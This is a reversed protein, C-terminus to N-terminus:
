AANVAPLVTLQVTVRREQASDGRLFGLTLLDATNIADYLDDPSQLRKGSASLLIDGPLLSAREAPGGPEVELLILGLRPQANASRVRIPRVTVGLNRPPEASLFAQLAGTPIALALPGAIMTNVGVIQGHIDALPGGSNGPALRLNSQVWRGNGLGRVPGVQYVTGTSIAGIFGLPNGAAIVPTGSRPVESSLVAAPASLRDAVLLALDRRRDQRILRVKRIEGDWSEVEPERGVLVHANTVVQNDNLVIGSGTGQM